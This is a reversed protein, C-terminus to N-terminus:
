NSVTKKKGSDIKEFFLRGLLFCCGDPISISKSEALSFPFIGTARSLYGTLIRAYGQSYYVEILSPFFATLRSLLYGLPWLAVLGSFLM